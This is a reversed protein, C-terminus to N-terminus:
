RVKEGALVLEQSVRDIELVKEDTEKPDKPEVYFKDASVYRLFLAANLFYSHFLFYHWLFCSFVYLRLLNYVSLAAMISSRACKTSAHRRTVYNPM